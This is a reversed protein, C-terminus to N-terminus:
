CPSRRAIASAIADLGETVSRAAHLYSSSALREAAWLHEETGAIPGRLRRIACVQAAYGEAELALRQKRNTLWRWLFRTLGLEQQQRVHVAEHAIVHRWADPLDYAEPPCYITRLTIFTGKDTWRLWWPKPALRVTQGDQLTYTRSNM